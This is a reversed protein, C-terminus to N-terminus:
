IEFDKCNTAILSCKENTKGDIAFKNHLKEFAFFNGKHLSHNANENQLPTELIQM